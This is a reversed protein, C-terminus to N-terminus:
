NTTTAYRHPPSPNGRRPLHLAQMKNKMVVKNKPDTIRHKQTHLPHDQSEADQLTSSKDQDTVQAQEQPKPQKNKNSYRRRTYRERRRFQKTHIGIRTGGRHGHQSTAQTTTTATGAFPLTNTLACHKHHHFCAPPAKAAAAAEAIRLRKLARRRM